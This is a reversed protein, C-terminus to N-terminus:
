ENNVIIAKEGIENIIKVGNIGNNESIVAHKLGPKLHVSPEGTAFSCGRLQLKGSDAEVLPLEVSNKMCRAEWHSSVGHHAGPVFSSKWGSSLYCDNLSVYSQSHSIVNQDSPGWFSCNVLRVSGDCTPSIEISVPNEGHTAVFQGNTVLIGMPQLYDVLMCRQAEDAGIGCLQGNMRGMPTSIFRYGINVPFVFTNTVYEWDTRGFIFAECNKWMYERVKGFDGGTQASSWWHCHFQVNDIRGIDSCSDVLIGRRLVCGYVSRIRHRVNGEPGVQIGNYSNILTVNEVTNDGGTLHFTWPYPVIDDLLQEPYYVSLGCVACSSGLEFLAPGDERGKGGIALIVTGVLPEIYMPSQAAGSLTVGEPIKLSGGILYKGAPLTIQAGGNKAADDLMKQVAITDDTKGDAMIKYDQTNIM